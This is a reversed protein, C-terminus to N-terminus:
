DELEVLEKHNYQRIDLEGEQKAIYVACVADGLVNLVTSGMERLRDIGALLALGEIPLGASAIVVSLMIFGTGPIGAAGIASLTATIVIALLSQFSLTIDYAQAIFLASMAQFIAAGNMNVTSGLPLVFNTIHKSIGLNRQACYMSVPLTASSSCTTFAMMIADRMGMFFPWPSLRALFKLMGCFVILMHAACAIYYAILFKLLPVLIAVGFSGAVWAMIAFVGIPSFEMVIATLRYMVDALSEMVSLLPRGKDGALNIAIGFFVSFVIIQIFNGSAMAVIPNSPIISILLEGLSATKEPAHQTLSVLGLGAGPQFYTAATLGIVIAAATTILYLFLTKVGVRGLKKPDHISTIGVTMSAFVLLVVIMNILNLFLTGIPKLLEAHPGLIIGAIVGLVLAILIKLWLKM